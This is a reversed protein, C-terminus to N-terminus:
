CTSDVYCIEVNAGAEQLYNLWLIQHAALKDNKGKVEVFKHTKTKTNWVLLDPMGSKTEGLNKILRQFIKALVKRGIVEVLDKVMEKELLVSNIAGFVAWKHSHEEWNTIGFELLKEQPWECDIEKLRKDISEKRNDYFYESFIDLPANQLKSIFVCEVLEEVNYFIDWFYLMLLQHIHAGESHDGAIYGDKKYEILALTEVNLITVGDDSKFTYMRKRGTSTSPIAKSSFRKVPISSIDILSPILEAIKNKSDQIIQHTKNNKLSDGLLELEYKTREGLCFTKQSLVEILLRAATDHDITQLHRIHLGILTYYWKGLRRSSPFKIILFELWQKVQSSFENKKAFLKDCCSSLLKRYVHAATYRNLHPDNEHDDYDGINNLCNYAQKALENIATLKQDSSPTAIINELQKKLQIANAYELFKERSYFIPFDEALPVEPLITNNYRLYDQIDEFASNTFIALLCFHNFAEIINHKIRIVEGFTKTIKEMLVDKFTKKTLTMQTNCKKLISKIMHKKTKDTSSINLDTVIKKIKALELQELNEEINEPDPKFYELFEQKCLSRFDEEIFEIHVMECFKSVNYWIKKRTYMKIIIYQQNENMTEFKHMLHSEEPSLLNKLSKVSTFNNFLDKIAQVIRKKGQDINEIDSITSIESSIQDKNIKKNSITSEISNNRGSLTSQRYKTHTNKLSVQPQNQDPHILLQKGVITQKRLKTNPSSNIPLSIPNNTAGVIKTSKNSVKQSTNTTTTISIKPETIFIEQQHQNKISKKLSKVSNTTTEPVDKISIEPEATFIEHQKASKNSLNVSNTTAKQVDTTSMKPQHHNKTSKNSLYVNNTTRKQVDIICIKPQDKTVQPQISEDSLSVPTTLIDNSSEPINDLDKQKNLFMKTAEPANNSNKDPEPGSIWNLCKTHPSLPDDSLQINDVKNPDCQNLNEEPLVTVTNKELTFSDFGSDRNYEYIITDSSSSSIETLDIIQDGSSDLTNIRIKQSSSSETKTPSKRKRVSSVIPSPYEVECPVHQMPNEPKSVSKSPQLGLQAILQKIKLPSKNESNM